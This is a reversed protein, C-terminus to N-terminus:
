ESELTVSGVGATLTVQLTAGAGGYAGNLYAGESLHWDGRTQINSLGGEVAVRVGVDRPFRLTIAGVGATVRVSASDAWPGTFDLILNGVGGEVQVDRPRAYGIGRVEVNAAGARLLFRDMPVANPTEWRVVMDSAGTELSFRTLALGDLDLHGKAAGVQLKLSMPVRPALYLGWENEAGPGPMGRTDPQAVRLVGDKWTVEPKWAPVNTRFLGSFLLEPEGAALTLEGMGLTVEVQATTTGELPIEERYEQM